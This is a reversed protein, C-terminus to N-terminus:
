GDKSLILRKKRVYKLVIAHVNKSLLPKVLTSHFPFNTEFLRIFSTIIRLSISFRGDYYSIIPIQSAIMTIGAVAPM